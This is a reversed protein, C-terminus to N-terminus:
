PPLAPEFGAPNTCRSAFTTGSTTGNSNCRFHPVHLPFKATDLSNLPILTIESSTDVHIRNGLGHTPPEFGELGVVKKRKHDLLYLNVRSSNVAGFTASQLSITTSCQAAGYKNVEYGAGQISPILSSKTWSKEMQECRHHSDEAGRLLPIKLSGYNRTRLFGQSLSSGSSREKRNRRNIQKRNTLGGLGECVQLAHGM